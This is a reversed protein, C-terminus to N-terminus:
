FDNMSKCHSVSPTAFFHPFCSSCLDRMNGNEVGIIKAGETEFRVLNEATPVVNGSKDLIEVTVHVVDSPDAKIIDRDVTLRIKNPDGATAIRTNVEKGDRTKGVAVVEGPEYSLMGPLICIPQQLRYRERRM